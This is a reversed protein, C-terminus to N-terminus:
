ILEIEEEQIGQRQREEWEKRMRNNEKYAKPPLAQRIKTKSYALNDTYLKLDRVLKSRRAETIDTRELEKTINSISITYRRDIEAIKTQNITLKAFGSIEICAYETTAARIESFQFNIIREVDALKVGHMESVKKCLEM